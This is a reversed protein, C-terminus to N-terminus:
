TTDASEPVTPPSSGAKTAEPVIITVPIASPVSTTIDTVSPPKHSKSLVIVEGVHIGDLVKGNYSGNM